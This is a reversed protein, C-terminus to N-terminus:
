VGAVINVVLEVLPLISLPQSASGAVPSIRRRCRPAFSVHLRTKGVLPSALVAFARATIRFTCICQQRLFTGFKDSENVGSIKANHALRAAFTMCILVPPCAPAHHRM